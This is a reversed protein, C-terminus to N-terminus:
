SLPTSIHKLKNEPDDSSCERIHQCWFWRHWFRGAQLIKIRGRRCLAAGYRHNKARHGNFTRVNDPVSM